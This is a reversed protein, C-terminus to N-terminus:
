HGGAPHGIGVQASPLLDVNREGRKVGGQGDQPHIFNSFSLSIGPLSSSAGSYRGDGLGLFQEVSRHNKNEAESM